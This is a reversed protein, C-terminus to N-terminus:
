GFEGHAGVAADPWPQAASGFPDRESVSCNNDRFLRWLLVPMSKLAPGRSPTLTALDIQTQWMTRGWNNNVTNSRTKLYPRVGILDEQLAANEPTDDRGRVAVHGYHNLLM